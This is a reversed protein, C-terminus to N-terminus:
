KNEKCSPCIGRITLDILNIDYDKLEEFNLKSEDLDLDIIEKCNDCVFHAHVQSFFDFRKRTENFDLESIINKEVFLNLTNYVTAQSLIPDKLKVAQYIDDATPHSRNVVLYDLILLRQHSARIGHGKLIQKEEKYRIDLPEKMLSAIVDRM